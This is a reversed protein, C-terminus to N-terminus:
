KSRDKIRKILPHTSESKIFQAAIRERQQKADLGHHEDSVQNVVEHASEAPDTPTTSTPPTHPGLSSPVSKLERGAQDRQKRIRYLMMEFSKVTLAFGKANLTKVIKENKIGVRQAEEIHQFVERLQAIKSRNAMDRTLDALADTITAKDM